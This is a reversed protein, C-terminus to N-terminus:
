YILQVYHIKDNWKIIYNDYKKEDDNMTYLYYYNGNMGNKIYYIYYNIINVPATMKFNIINYINNILLEQINIIYNYELGNIKSYKIIWFDDQARLLYNVANCLKIPTWEIPNEINYIIYTDNKMNLFAKILKNNDKIINNLKQKKIPINHILFDYSIDIENFEIM